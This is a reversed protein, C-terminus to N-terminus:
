EREIPKPGPECIYKMMENNLLCSFCPMTFAVLMALSPSESHTFSPRVSPRGISQDQLAGKKAEHKTNQTKNKEIEM